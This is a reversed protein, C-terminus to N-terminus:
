RLKSIARRLNLKARGELNSRFPENTYLSPRRLFESLIEARKKNFLFSPVLQYEKRVGAEFLDYESEEAGLIALDVDVLLSQDRGQPSGQHKTVEVLARVRQIIDPAARNSELFAAAWEASKGENDGSLPRYIADHFWLALEIENAREAKAACSDLDRLCGELHRLTHYHRHGESYAAVLTDCAEKNPPFGFSGMLVAWRDVLVM